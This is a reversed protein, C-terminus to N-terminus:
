PSEPARLEGAGVSFIAGDQLWRRDVDEMGTTTIFTQVDAAIAQVLLSRRASDLESAVDDLLLVPPEGANAAIFALEALKLSLVASRQQGQSAFQRADHGNLCVQLDDRHPGVVTTGRAEEVHQREALHIRFRDALDAPPETGPEFLGCQYTLTLQEKGGSIKLHHDAALPELAAVAAARRKILETGHEILPEDFVARLSAPAGNRLLANRQTLTRQYQQLHHFYAPSVQALEMDLFRRRLAPAGKVLQLDEPAFLVVNLRGILNSIKAELQGNLRLQKRRNREYALDVRMTGHAKVVDAQVRFMDAGWRVLEQDRSARHSRATALLFIAELVNTKGAGNPGVLLNYRPSFEATLSTYSRFNDLHLRALHM